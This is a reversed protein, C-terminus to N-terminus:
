DRVRACVCVCVCVCVFVCRVRLWVHMCALKLVHACACVKEKHERNRGSETGRGERKKESMRLAEKDVPGRASVRGSVRGCDVRMNRYAYVCTCPLSTNLIQM